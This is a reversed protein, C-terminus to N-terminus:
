FCCCLIIGYLTNAAFNDLEGDSNVCLFQAAYGGRPTRTWYSGAFVGTEDYRLKDHDVLWQYPTGEKAYYPYSSDAAEDGFIEYSSPIWFKDNTTTVSSTSSNGAANHSYKKVTKVASNVEEDVFTVTSQITSRAQSGSWGGNNTDSSNMKMTIKGTTSGNDFLVLETDKTAVTYSANGSGDYLEDHDVGIITFQNILKSGMQWNLYGLDIDKGVWDPIIINNKSAFLFSDKTLNPFNTGNIMNIVAYKQWNPSTESDILNQYSSYGFLSSYANAIATRKEEGMDYVAKCLAPTQVEDPGFAAGLAVPNEILYQFQSPDTLMMMMRHLGKRYNSKFFYTYNMFDAQQPKITM